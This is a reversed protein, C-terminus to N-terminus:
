HHMIVTWAIGVIGADTFEILGLFEILLLLEIKTSM